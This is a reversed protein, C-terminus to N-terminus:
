QESTYQWIESYGLDFVFWGTDLCRLCLMAAFYIETKETAAVTSFAFNSNPKAIPYIKLNPTNFFNLWTKDLIFYGITVVFKSRPKQLVIKFRIFTLSFRRYVFHLQSSLKKVYHLLIWTLLFLWRRNYMIIASYISSFDLLKRVATVQRPLFVATNIYIDSSM